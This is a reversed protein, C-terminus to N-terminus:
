AQHDPPAWDTEREHAGHRGAMLQVLEDLSHACLTNMIRTCLFTVIRRNLRSLGAITEPTKGEVMLNLVRRERQTLGALKNQVVNRHGRVGADHRLANSLSGILAKPEFPKHHMGFIQADPTPNWAEAPELILIVPPLVVQRQQAALIDAANSSLQYVLLCGPRSPSYHGLFDRISPHREAQAGISSALLTLVNWNAHNDRDICFITPDFSM